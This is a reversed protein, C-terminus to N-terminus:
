RIGDQRFWSCKPLREGNSVVKTEESRITGFGLKKFLNIIAGKGMTLFLGSNGKRYAHIEHLGDIYIHVNRNNDIAIILPIFRIAWTNGLSHKLKNWDHITSEKVRTCHFETM